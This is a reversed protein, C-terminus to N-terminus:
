ERVEATHVLPVEPKMRLHRAELDSLTKLWMQNYWNKPLGRVPRGSRCVDTTTPIRTRPVHGRSRQNFENRKEAEALVEVSRLFFGVKEDRWPYQYIIYVTEGQDESEDGSVIDPNAQLLVEYAPNLDPHLSAGV